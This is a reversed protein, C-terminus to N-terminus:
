IFLGNSQSIWRLNCFEILEVFFADIIKFFQKRFFTEEWINGSLIFFKQFQVFIFRVTIWIYLYNFKKCFNDLKEKNEGILQDVLEGNKYAHFSPVASVDLEVVLSEHDDIDINAFKLNIHKKSLEELNYFIM